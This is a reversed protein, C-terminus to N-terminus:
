NGVVSLKSRTAKWKRLNHLILAVQETSSLNITAFPLNPDLMVPGLAEFTDMTGDTYTVEITMRQPAVDVPPAERKPNIDYRM